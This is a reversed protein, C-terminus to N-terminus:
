LLVDLYLSLKKEVKLIKAYETVLPINKGKWRSYEKFATIVTEINVNNHSRLIDCISKEVSYAKVINGFTTKVETIGLEYITKGARTTRIRTRELVTINYNIPFTMDFTDPTRDSLGQLFLATSLSYIGKKYRAQLNYMEDDFEGALIYVGREPREFVGKQLLFNLAGRSIGAQTVEASTIVGNNANVIQMIRESDTM